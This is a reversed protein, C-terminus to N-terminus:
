LGGSVSVCGCVGAGSGDLKIANCQNTLAKLEAASLGADQFDSQTIVGSAPQYQTAWGHIGAEPKPAAFTPCVGGTTASSLVKITALFLSKGTLTNGTLEAVPLASLGDPTVQCSCCEALEQNPDFVYIDACLDQHATTGANTLYVLTPPGAPTIYNVKFTDPDIAQASLITACGIFAAVLTLNRFM